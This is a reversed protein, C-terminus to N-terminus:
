KFRNELCNRRNEEYVRRADGTSPTTKRVVPPHFGNPFDELFAAELRNLPASAQTFPQKAM